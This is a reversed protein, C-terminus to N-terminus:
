GTHRFTAIVFAERPTRPGAGIQNVDRKRPHDERLWAQATGGPTSTAAVTRLRLMDRSSTAALAWGKFAM